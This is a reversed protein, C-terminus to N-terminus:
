RKAGLVVLNAATGTRTCTSHCFFRYTGTTHITYHCMLSASGVRMRTYIDGGPVPQEIEYTGPNQANAIMWTMGTANPNSVFIQIQGKSVPEGPAASYDIDAAWFGMITLRDGAEVSM